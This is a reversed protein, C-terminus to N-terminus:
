KADRRREGLCERTHERLAALSLAYGHKSRVYEYVGEISVITKGERRMEVVRKVIGVVPDGLACTRCRTVKRVARAWSEAEKLADKAM